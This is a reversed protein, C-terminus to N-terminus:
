LMSKIYTGLERMALENHTLLQELSFRKVKDVFLCERLQRNVDASCHHQLYDAANPNYRCLELYFDLSMNSRELVDWYRNQDNSDLVAKMLAMTMEQSRKDVPTQFYWDPEIEIAMFCLRESKNSDPIKLFQEHFSDKLAQSLKPTYREPIRNLNLINKQVLNAVYSQVIYHPFPAFDEETFSRCHQNNEKFIKRLREYFVSDPTVAITM